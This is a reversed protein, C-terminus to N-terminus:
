ITIFQSSLFHLTSYPSPLVPWPWPPAFLPFTVTNFPTPRGSSTLSLWISLLNLSGALYMQPLMVPLLFLQIAAVLCSPAQGALHFLLLAHPELSSCSPLFILEAKYAYHPCKFYVLFSQLTRLLSRM